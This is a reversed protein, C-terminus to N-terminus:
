QPVHGLTSQSLSQETVAPLRESNSGVPHAVVRYDFYISSRGHETERVIFGADYKAAVYLGRTDGDPTLFVQYGQRTDISRALASDFRVAGAGNELRATGTDEITARTSVANFARIDGGSARLHTYYATADVTASFYGNGGGDVSFGGGGSSVNIAAFPYAGPSDAQGYLAYYNNNANEFYGSNRYRSYAYM